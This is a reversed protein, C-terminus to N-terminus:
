MTNGAEPRRTGSLEHMQHRYETCGQGEDEQALRQGEGLNEPGTEHEGAEHQDFRHAWGISGPSGSTGSNPNLLCEM